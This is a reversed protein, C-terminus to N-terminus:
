LGVLETGSFAFAATVFVSCVGKFGNAFPGPSYFLRAGWYSDYKYGAPGGGACLVVGIIIFTVIASLKLISSWFEEEAYGIVGFVNMVIIAVLFITIWTAINVDVDWYNITLAAVVLELPLVIAWQFVSAQTLLFQLHNVAHYSVLELGHCVGM